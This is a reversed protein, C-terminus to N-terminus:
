RFLYLHRAFCFAFLLVFYFTAESIMYSCLQENMRGGRGWGPREALVGGGGSM